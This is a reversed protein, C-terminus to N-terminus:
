RSDGLNNVAIHDFKQLMELAMARIAPTPEAAPLLHTFEGRRVKTDIRVETDLGTVEGAADRLIERWSGVYGGDWEVSIIVAELRESPTAGLTEAVQNSSLTIWAESIVAVSQAAHAVCALRAFTVYLRKSQLNDSWRMPIIIKKDNECSLIAMPIIHGQSVIMQEAELSNFILCDVAERHDM